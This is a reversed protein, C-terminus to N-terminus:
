TWHPNAGAPLLNRAEILTENSINNKTCFDEIAKEEAMVFDMIGALTESCNAREKLSATDLGSLAQFRSFLDENGAIYTLLLLGLIEADERKM